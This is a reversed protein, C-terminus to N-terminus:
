ESTAVKKFQILQGDNTPSNIYTSWLEMLVRRKDMLVGRRYAAEASNKITHAIAMEAVHNPTNTEEGTWDRFCSRFGHVTIENYGMTKQLTKDMAANSLGGGKSQGAFIYDNIRNNYLLTILEMARKSLPVEHPKRAKMHMAPISWVQEKFNIEQWQAKIIESTRSGTLILFELAYASMYKHERLKSVFSNIEKYPLAPHHKVIKIKSPKPLLKDLHGQWRAPNEGEYYKNALAYNLIQEIRNRVRTATETKIHWIPKLLLKIHETTISKVPLLGITPYAYTTLTNTWQQAHKANTWECKKLDIFETACDTFTKDANIILKATAQEQKREAIPDYSPNDKIQQYLESVKRRAQDLTINEVRGLGMERRKGHISYRFIWSKLGSKDVQLYLNNLRDSHRGQKASKVFFVTLQKAKKNNM